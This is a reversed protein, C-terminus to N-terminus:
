RQFVEHLRCFREVASNKSGDLRLVETGAGWRNIARPAKAPDSGFLLQIMQLSPDDVAQGTKIYGGGLDDRGVWFFLLRLRCTMIYDYEARIRPTARIWKM